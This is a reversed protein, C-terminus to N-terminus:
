IIPIIKAEFKIQDGEYSSTLYDKISSLDVDSLDKSLMGESPKLWLLGKASRVHPNNDIRARWQVLVRNDM